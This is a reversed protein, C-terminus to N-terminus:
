EEKKTFDIVNREFHKFNTKQDIQYEILGDQYTIICSGTQRGGPKLSEMEVVLNSHQYARCNIFIPAFGIFSM